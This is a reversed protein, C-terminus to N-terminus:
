TLTQAHHDHQRIIARFHLKEWIFITEEKVGGVVRRASGVNESHLSAHSFYGRGVVM